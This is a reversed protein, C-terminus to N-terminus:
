SLSKPDSEDPVAPDLVRSTVGLRKRIHEFFTTRKTECTVGALAYVRQWFFPDQRNVNLIDEYFGVVERRRSQMRDLFGASDLAEDNFSDIFMASQILPRLTNENDIGRFYLRAVLLRIARLIEEKPAPLLSPSRRAGRKAEDNLLESYSSFLAEAQETTM